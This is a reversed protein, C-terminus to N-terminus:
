EIKKVWGLCLLSVFHVLYIVQNTITQNLKKLKKTENEEGEASLFQANRRLIKVLIAGGVTILVLANNERGFKGFRMSSVVDSLVFSDVLTKDDYVRVSKDQLAVAVYNVSREPIDMSVITSIPHSLEISWILKGKSSYNLLQNDM